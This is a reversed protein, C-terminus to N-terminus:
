FQMVHLSVVPLPWPLLITMVPEGNSEYADMPMLVFEVSSLWSM